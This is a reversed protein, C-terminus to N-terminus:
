GDLSWDIPQRGAAQLLENTRSFLRSGFFGRHASLPSPHCSEVVAHPEGDVLIKKRRAPNGCLVFVVRQDGAAVAQIVRDTFHEWGKGAHSGPEGQRVTLAANLLLVGRRAWPELCGSEPVAVGLDDHLERFINRLSPPPKIGVPVSFALGHAQGPRHYPDQGLIVARVDDPSTLELARFVEEEPPYVIWEQRERRVFELLEEFWPEDLAGGLRARWGAPLRSREAAPHAAGTFPRGPQSNGDSM